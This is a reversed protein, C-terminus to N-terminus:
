LNRSTKSTQFLKQPNFLDSIFNLDACHQAEFGGGMATQLPEPHEQLEVRFPPVRPAAGISSAGLSPPEWLPPPSFATTTANADFGAVDLSEPSRSQVLLLPPPVTSQHMHQREYFASKM